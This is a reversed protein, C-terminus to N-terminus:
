VGVGVLFLPNLSFVRSCFDLFVGDSCILGWM